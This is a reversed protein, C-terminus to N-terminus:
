HRRSTFQPFATSACLTDFAPENLSVVKADPKAAKRNQRSALLRIRQACEEFQEDKLAKSVDRQEDSVWTKLQKATVKGIRDVPIHKEPSSINSRRKM